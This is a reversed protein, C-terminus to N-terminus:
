IGLLIKRLIRQDEATGNEGDADLDAAAGVATETMAVLDRIDVEGDGNVDGYALPESCLYYNGGYNNYQYSNIVTIMGDTVATQQRNVGLTWGRGGPAGTIKSYALGNKDLAKSEGAVTNIEASNTDNHSRCRLIYAMSNAAGYISSGDNFAWQQHLNGEELPALYIGNDKMTLYTNTRMNKVTYYTVGNVTAASEIKWRYAANKEATKLDVKTNGSSPAIKVNTDAAAPAEDRIYGGSRLALTAEFSGDAQVLDEIGINLYGNTNPQTGGGGNLMWTREGNGSDGIAAATYTSGSMTWNLQYLATVTEGGVEVTHASGLNILGYWNTDAGWNERLIWLQADNSKDRTEFTMTATTGATVTGETAYHATLYGSSRPSQILYAVAEESVGKGNYYTVYRAPTFTLTTGCDAADLLADGVTEKVEADASPDSIYKEYFYPKRTKQAWRYGITTTFSGDAGRLSEITTGDVGNFQISQPGTGSWAMKTYSLGDDIRACTYETGSVGLNGLCYTHKDGWADFFVWLQADNAEDRPLTVLTVTSDDNYLATLYKGSRTSQITFATKNLPDNRNDSVGIDVNTKVPTMKWETSTTSQVVPSGNETAASVGLTQMFLSVILCLLLVCSISKKFFPKKKM